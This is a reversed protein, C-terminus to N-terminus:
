KEDGNRKILYVVFGVLGLMALTTSLMMFAIFNMQHRRSKRRQNKSDM